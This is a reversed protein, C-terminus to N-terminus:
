DDFGGFEPGPDKDEFHRSIASVLNVVSLFAPTQDNRAGPAPWGQGDLTHFASSVVDILDSHRRAIRGPCEFFAASNGCDEGPCEAANDLCVPCFPM